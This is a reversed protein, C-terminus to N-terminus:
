VYVLFQINTDHNPLYVFKNNLHFSNYTYWAQQETTIIESFINAYTFNM